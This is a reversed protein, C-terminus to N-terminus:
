FEALSATKTFACFWSEKAQRFSDYAFTEEIEM